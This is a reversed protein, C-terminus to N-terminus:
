AKYLEPATFRTLACAVAERMIDKRTLRRQTMVGIVGVGNFVNEEGMIRDIVKKSDENAPSVQRLISEDIEYGASCGVGMRGDRLVVAYNRDFWRGEFEVVGGEIGVAYECEPCNAKAGKARNAAGAMIETDGVPFPRVESAVDVSVVEVEGFFLSFAERVADAKLPNPSGVAVKM